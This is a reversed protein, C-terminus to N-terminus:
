KKATEPEDEDDGFSFGGSALQALDLPDSALHALDMPDLSFIRSALAQADASMMMTATM